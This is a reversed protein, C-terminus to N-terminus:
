NKNDNKEIISYYKKVKKYLRFYFVNLMLVFIPIFVAIIWYVTTLKFDILHLIDFEILIIFVSAIVFQRKTRAEKKMSNIIM